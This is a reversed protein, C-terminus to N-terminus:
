VSRLYNRIESQVEPASGFFRLAGTPFNAVWAAGQHAKRAEGEGDPTEISFRRPYTSSM